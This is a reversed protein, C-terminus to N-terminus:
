RGGAPTAGMPASVSFRRGRRPAGLMASAAFALIAARRPLSTRLLKPAVPERGPMWYPPATQRGPETVHTLLYLPKVRNSTAVKTVLEGL